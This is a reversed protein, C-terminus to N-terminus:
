FHYVNIYTYIYIYIYIYFIKACIFHWIETLKCHMFVFDMKEM